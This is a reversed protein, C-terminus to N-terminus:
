KAEMRLEAKEELGDATGPRNIASAVPPLDTRDVPVHPITCNSLDM